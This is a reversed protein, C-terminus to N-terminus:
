DGSLHGTKVFITCGEKSFPKHLSLHPSRIWSGAPYRGQEDEFVGDLVLIEEGLEHTHSSFWAGPAYSVISTAKASETGNRELLKRMVGQVPSTTWIVADSHLVVRESYDTHLQM